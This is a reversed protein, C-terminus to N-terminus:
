LQALLWALLILLMRRSKGRTFDFVQLKVFHGCHGRLFLGYVFKKREVVGDGSAVRFQRTGDLEGVLRHSFEAPNELFSEIESIEIASVDPFMIHMCNQFEILVFPSDPGPPIGEIGKDYVDVSVSIKCGGLWGYLHYIVSIGTSAVPYKTISQRRWVGVTAPFVLGTREDRFTEM